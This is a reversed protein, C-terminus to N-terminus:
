KRNQRKEIVDMQTILKELQNRIQKYEFCGVPNNHKPSALIFACKLAADIRYWLIRHLEDVSCETLREFSTLEDM